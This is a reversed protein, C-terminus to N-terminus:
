PQPMLRYDIVRRILLTQLEARSEHDDREREVRELQRELEAIRADKAASDAASESARRELEAIRADKAALERGVRSYEHSALADGRAATIAVANEENNYALNQLTGAAEERADPTGTKELEVLPAIGGAAAIAVANEENNYALNRLAGAANKRAGPTGTNVLKVLPAIGGAAVIAVQNEPNYALNGLAGAAQERAGPTGMKVLKVLPAIGGAAVIAADNEDNGSLNWLAGAAIERAGPKAGPTGKKVLTVLPAIGGAAAIAVQNEENTALNWLAGAAQERAVPKGRKLRKVLDEVSAMRSPGRAQSAPKDAKLAPTIDAAGASDLQAAAKKSSPAPPRKSLAKSTTWAQKPRAVPRPRPACSRM